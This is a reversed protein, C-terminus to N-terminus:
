MKTKNAKKKIYREIIGIKIKLYEAEKQQGLEDYIEKAKQTLKLSDKPKSHMLLDALGSYTYALQKKVADLSAPERHLSQFNKVCNDYDNIIDKACQKKDHLIQFLRKRNGSKKYLIELDSLRALVHLNDNLQTSIDMSQMITKEALDNKGIRMYIKGLENILINALRFNGNKILNDTLQESNFFFQRGFGQKTYEANLKQFTDKVEAFNCDSVTHCNREFNSYLDKLTSPQKPLQNISPIKM